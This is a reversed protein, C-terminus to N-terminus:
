TATSSNQVHMGDVSGGDTAHSPAEHQLTAAPPAECALGRSTKLLSDAMAGMALLAIVGLFTALLCTKPSDIVYLRPRPRPPDHRVGTQSAARTHISSIRPVASM